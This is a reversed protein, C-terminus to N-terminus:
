FIASADNSNGTKWPTIAPNSVEIDKKNLTVTYSYAHGAAYFNETPAEPLKLTANYWQGDFSVELGLSSTVEQPLIIIQSTTAGDLQMTISGQYPNTVVAEGTNTNFTGTTHLGTVTYEAPGTGSFDIGDGARFTFRILSMCHKFAHDGTFSVTPNHTDGTAGSAFLYDIGPGQFGASTIVNVTGGYSLYPYYANFTKTETDTFYITTGYPVFQGNERVYPVNFYGEVLIGIRDGDIFGTGESNVRTAPTATVNNGIAAIFRAAVPGDSAPSEPDNSCAAATLLLAAASLRYFTHRINM